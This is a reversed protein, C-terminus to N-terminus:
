IKIGVKLGFGWDVIEITILLRWDLHGIWGLERYKISMELGWDWDMIGFRGDM